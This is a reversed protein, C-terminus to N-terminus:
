LVLRGIERSVMWARLREYDQNDSATGSAERAELYANFLAYSNAPVRQQFTAGDDHIIEEHTWVPVENTAVGADGGIWTNDYAEIVTEWASIYSNTSVRPFDASAASSPANRFWPIGRKIPSNKRKHNAMDSESLRNRRPIDAM